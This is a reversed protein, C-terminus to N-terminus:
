RFYHELLTWIEPSALMAVLEKALAAHHPEWYDSYHKGTVFELPIAGEAPKLHLFEFLQDVTGQWNETFNEYFLNHVPLNRRRATELAFNHWWVYRMFEAHCPLDKALRWLEDDFFRSSMEKRVARSDQFQCWTRFGEKTANFVNLNDQNDKMRGWRKQEHHLRAVINDFPNRIVRVARKPVSGDYLTPIKTDNVIKNGSRCAIEFSRVTEVYEQPSACLCTGGCHTKTLIYKPPRERSPYRYFPGDM